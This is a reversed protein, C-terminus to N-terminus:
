RVQLAPHRKQQEFPYVTVRMLDAFSQEYAARRLGQGTAAVALQPNGRYHIGAVVHDVSAAMLQLTLYARTIGYPDSTPDVPYGVDRGIQEFSVIDHTYSEVSGVVAKMAEPGEMDCADKLAAAYEARQREIVQPLRSSYYEEIAVATDDAKHPDYAKANLNASPSLFTERVVDKFPYIGNNPIHCRLCQYANIVRVDKIPLGGPSEKVQAIDPPVDAAQNGNGDDLRYGHLGNPLSFIAERGDHKLTGVFAELVSKNGRADQNVDYTRFYFGTGGPGYPSPALQLERNNLAVGGSGGGLVSGGKLIHTDKEFAKIDILLAKYWDDEKPPMMLLTSYIGGFKAENLLRPIAWDARLVFKASQSLHRAAYDVSPDIWGRNAYTGDPQRHTSSFFYPDLRGLAEWPNLFDLREQESKFNFKVGRRELEALRKVRSGYDWGLATLDVKVLLNEAIPEPKWLESRFSTSNGSYAIVKTYSARQAPPLAHLSLYRTVHQKHPDTAGQLDLFAVKVVGDPTQALAPAAAILAVALALARLV